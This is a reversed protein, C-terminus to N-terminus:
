IIFIKRVPKLQEINELTPKVYIVFSEICCDAHITKLYNNVNKNWVYRSMNSMFNRSYKWISPKENPGLVGGGHSKEKEEQSWETPLGNPFYKDYFDEKYMTKAEDKLEEWYPCGPFYTEIDDLQEINNYSWKSRGRVTIGYIYAIPIQYFRGERVSVKEIKFEKFSEEKNYICMMCIAAYRTIIDYEDSKYGLLKDYGKCAELCIKYKEKYPSHDAFLELIHWIDIFQSIWCAAHTKGQFIARMFYMEKENGTAFTPTKRTVTDPMTLPDKKLLVIINWLSNDRDLKSLKHSSLMINDISIEDSSLTNWADVLWQLRMSGVNWLWSQFLTSISEAIYGSVILEQCWFLSNTHLLVAQVEDISYLHKSLPM